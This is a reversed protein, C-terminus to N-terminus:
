RAPLGTFCFELASVASLVDNSGIVDATVRSLGRSLSEEILSGRADEGFRACLAYSASDEQECKQKMQKSHLQM